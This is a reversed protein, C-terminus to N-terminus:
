QVKSGTQTWVRAVKGKSSYWMEKFKELNESSSKASQEVKQMESCEVTSSADIEPKYHGALLAQVLLQAHLASWLRSGELQKVHLGAGM